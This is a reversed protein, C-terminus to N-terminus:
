LKMIKTDLIPNDHVGLEIIATTLQTSTLIMPHFDGFPWIIFIVSNDYLVVKCPNRYIVFEFTVDNRSM